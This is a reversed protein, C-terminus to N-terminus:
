QSVKILSTVEFLFFIAGQPYMFSGCYGLHTEINIIVGPPIIIFEKETEPAEVDVEFFVVPILEMQPHNNVSAIAIVNTPKAMVGTHLVRASSNIKVKAELPKRPDEIPPLEVARIALKIM